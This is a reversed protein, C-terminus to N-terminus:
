YILHHTQHGNSIEPHVHSCFMRIDRGSSHIDSLFCSIQCFTEKFLILTLLANPITEHYDSRDLFPVSLSYVRRIADSGTAQVHVQHPFIPEMLSALTREYEDRYLFLDDLLGFLRSHCRKEQVVSRHSIRRDYGKKLLTQQGKGQDRSHTPM